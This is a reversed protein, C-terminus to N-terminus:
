SILKCKAITTQLLIITTLGPYAAQRLDPLTADGALRLVVVYWHATLLLQPNM